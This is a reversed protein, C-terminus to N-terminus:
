TSAPSRRTLAVHMPSDHDTSRSLNESHADNEALAKAAAAAHTLADSGVLQRLPPSDLAALRVILRAVKAPDGAAMDAGSKLMHADRGGNSQVAHQNASDFDLGLGLRNAHWRTRSGTGAPSGNARSSQTGRANQIRTAV